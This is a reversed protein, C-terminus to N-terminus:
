GISSLPINVQLRTMSRLNNLPLLLDEESAMAYLEWVLLIDPKCSGEHAQMLVLFELVDTIATQLIRHHQPSLSWGQSDKHFGQWSDSSNEANKAHQPYLEVLVVASLPGSWARCVSHLQPIRSASLFTVLTAQKDPVTPNTWWSGIARYVGADVPMQMALDVSMLKEINQAADNYCKVCAELSPQSDFTKSANFPLGAWPPVPVAISDWDIHWAFPEKLSNWLGAFSAQWGETSAAHAFQMPCLFVLLYVHVDAKFCRM